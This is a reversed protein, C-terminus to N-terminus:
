RSRMGPPPLVRVYTPSRHKQYRGCLEPDVYNIVRRMGDESERICTHDRAVWSEGSDDQVMVENSACAGVLLGLLLACAAM